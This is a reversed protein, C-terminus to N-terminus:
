KSKIKQMLRVKGGRMSTRKGLEKRIPEDCDDCWDGDPDNREWQQTETDWMCMLTVNTGGCEQCFWEIKM